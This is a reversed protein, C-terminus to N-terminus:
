ERALRDVAPGSALGQTPDANLQELTLQLRRPNSPSSFDAEREGGGTRQLAAELEARVTAADQPASKGAGEAEQEQKLRVAQRAFELLLACPELCPIISKEGAADPPLNGVTWLRRKLCFRRHCCARVVQGAQEDALMTTIRYMGTQRATFERYGTVPPPSQRAAFWDAVAGPYLQQLAAELEADNALPARWGSPLNPASKLPRFAGAATAQALARLESLPVVRLAALARDRDADHRLEYGGVMRRVLVQAMLLEDGLQAVFAQLAPNVVVNL